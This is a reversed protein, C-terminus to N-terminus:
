GEDKLCGWFFLPRSLRGKYSLAKAKILRLM